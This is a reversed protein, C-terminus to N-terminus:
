SIPVTKCHNGWVGWHFRSHLLCLVGNCRVCFKRTRLISNDLSSHHRLPRFLVIALRTHLFSCRPNSDRESRKEVCRLDLQNLRADHWSDSGGNGGHERFRYIQGTCSKLTKFAKVFVNKYRKATCRYPAAGPFVTLRLWHKRTLLTGNSQM